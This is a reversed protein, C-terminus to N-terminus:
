KYVTPYPIPPDLPTPAGRGGPGFEKLEMCNRPFNPLIKHQRGGPLNASGGRPFGPNAVALPLKFLLFFTPKLPVHSYVELRM